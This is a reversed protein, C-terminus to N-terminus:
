HEVVRAAAVLEHALVSLADGLVKHAVMVVIAAIAGILGQLTTLSGTAERLLERRRPGWPVILEVKM